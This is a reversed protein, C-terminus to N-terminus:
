DTETGAAVCMEMEHEKLALLLMLRTDPDDLSLGLIGQLKNVRYLVTNRHLHMEKAMKTMDRENRLLSELLSLYDIGGTNELDLLRDRLRDYPYNQRYIRLVNYIFYSDFRYVTEEPHLKRGLEGATKAQEYACRFDRPERFPCSIGACARNERFLEPYDTESVEGTDPSPVYRLVIIEEDRLFAALTLPDSELCTLVYQVYPYLYYRFRVSWVQHERGATWRMLNSKSDIEQASMDKDLMEELLCVGRKEFGNKPKGAKAVLEQIFGALAKMNHMDEPSPDRSLGYLCLTHVHLANDAFVKIIKTCNIYNPPYHYGINYFKEAEELYRNEILGQIMHKPFYGQKLTQAIDPNEATINKTYALVRLTKSMVIIPDSFLKESEDILAQIGANEATLCKMNQQWDWMKKQYGLLLNTVEAMDAGEDLIICDCALGAAARRLEATGRCLVAAGPTLWSLAEMDCDISIYLTSTGCTGAGSGQLIAVDSFLREGDMTHEAKPGYKSLLEFISYAVFDM